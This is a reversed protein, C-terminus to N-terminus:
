NVVAETIRFKGLEDYRCVLNEARRGAARRKKVVLDAVTKECDLDIVDIVGLETRKFRAVRADNGTWRRHFLVSFLSSSKGLDASLASSSLVKSCAM